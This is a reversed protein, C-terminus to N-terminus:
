HGKRVHLERYRALEPYVKTPDGYSNGARDRGRALYVIHSHGLESKGGLHKVTTPMYRMTYGTRRKDSFNPPSGHILGGDHLSAENAKLECPVARSEDFKGHKIEIPFLNQSKDVEVYESFGHHQTRPIVYMCGNGINSDDIALWVTVVEIPAIMKKWYSADEHWPVRKGNGQPKSIFHSSFLAIDPGIIPEVLDLIEDAFLWEFLKPDTFHPVDMEEPRVGEPLAELKEEFHSKLAEFKPRPLIPHKYLLYGETRFAEVELPSLLPKKTNAEIM